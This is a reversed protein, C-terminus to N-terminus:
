SHQNCCSRLSGWAEDQASAMPVWKVGVRGLDVKNQKGPGQVFVAAVRSTIGMRFGLLGCKLLVQHLKMRKIEMPSSNQVPM